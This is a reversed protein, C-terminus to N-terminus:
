KLESRVASHTQIVPNAEIIMNVSATINEIAKNMSEDIIRELNQTLNKTLSNELCREMEVMWLPNLNPDLNSSHNM